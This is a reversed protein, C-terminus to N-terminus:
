FFPQLWWNSRRIGFASHFGAPEASAQCSKRDAAQLNFQMYGSYRLEWLGRRLVNDESEVKETNRGGYHLKPLM